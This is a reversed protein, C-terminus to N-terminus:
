RGGLLHRHAIATLTSVTYVLPAAVFPDRLSGKTMARSTGSLSKIIALSMRSLNMRALSKKSTAVRIIAEGAVASLQTLLELL